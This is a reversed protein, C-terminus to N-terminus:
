NKIQIKMKKQSKMRARDYGKLIKKAMRQKTNIDLRDDFLSFVACKDNLYGLHNIFKKIAVEGLKNNSYNLLKKLLMLDNIPATVINAASFWMKIYCEVVFCCIDELANVEKSPGPLQIMEEVNEKMDTDEDESSSSSYYQTEATCNAIELKEKKKRDDEEEQQTIKRKEIGTLKMDIGLM